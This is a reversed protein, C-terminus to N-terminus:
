FDFFPVRDGTEAHQKLRPLIQGWGFTVIRVMAEDDRWGTHDFRVLTAGDSEALDFVVDTDIWPPPGGVCHWRLRRGEEADETRLDWTMPADPFSMRSVGGPRADVEARSTWWSRVGEPSTLATWVREAPADVAMQMLIPTM